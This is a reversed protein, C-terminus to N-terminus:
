EADPEVEEPEEPKPDPKVARPASKRGKAAIVVSEKKTNAKKEKKKIKKAAKVIEKGDDENLGLIARVINVM